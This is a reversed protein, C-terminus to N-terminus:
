VLACILERAAGVRVEVFVAGAVVVGVVGAPVPVACGGAVVVVRAGRVVVVRAGRVVVVRGGRVVVVVAGAVVVVAAARTPGRESTDIWSADYWGPLAAFTVQSQDTLKLSYLTGVNLQPVDPGPRAAATIVQPTQKMVALERSVAWKFHTCGDVDAAAAGQCLFGALLAYALFKLVPLRSM